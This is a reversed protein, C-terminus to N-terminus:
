AAVPLVRIEVLECDIGFSALYAVPDAFVDTTGDSTTQNPTQTSM